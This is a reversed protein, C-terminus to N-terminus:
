RIPEAPRYGSKFVRCLTATDGRPVDCNPGITILTLADIVLWISDEFEASSIVSLQSKCAEDYVSEGTCSMSILSDSVDAQSVSISYPLGGGTLYSLRQGVRDRFHSFLCSDDACITATWERRPYGFAFPRCAYLTDSITWNGLFSAPAAPVEVHNTAGKDKTCGLACVGLLCLGSAVRLYTLKAM